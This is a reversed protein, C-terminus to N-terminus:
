LESFRRFTLSSLLAKYHRHTYFPLPKSTGDVSFYLVVFYGAFWCWVSFVFVIFAVMRVLCWCLCLSLSFSFSLSLSVLTFFFFFHFYFFITAVIAFCDNQARKYERRRRRRRQQSHKRHIKTTSQKCHKAIRGNFRVVFCRSHKKEAIRVRMRQMVFSFRVSDKENVSENKEGRFQESCFTDEIKKKEFNIVYKFKQWQQVAM